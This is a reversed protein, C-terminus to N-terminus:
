KETCWKKKLIIRMQLIDWYKSVTLDSSDTGCCFRQWWLAACDKGATDRCRFATGAATHWTRGKPNTCEDEGTQWAPWGDAKASGADKGGPSRTCTADAVNEMHVGACLFSGCGSSVWPFLLKQSLRWWKSSYRKHIGGPAAAWVKLFIIWIKSETRLLSLARWWWGFYGSRCLSRM